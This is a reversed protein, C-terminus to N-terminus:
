RSDKPLFRLFLKYLLDITVVVGLVILVECTYLIYSDINNISSGTYDIIGKIVSYM